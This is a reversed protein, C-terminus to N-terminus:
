QLLCLAWQLNASDVMNVYYLFLDTPMSGALWDRLASAAIPHLTEPIQCM